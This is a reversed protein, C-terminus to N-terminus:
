IWDRLRDLMVDLIRVLAIAGFILAAVVLLAQLCRWAANCRARAVAAAALMHDGRVAGSHTVVGFGGRASGLSM